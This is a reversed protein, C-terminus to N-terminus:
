FYGFRTRKSHHKGLCLRAAPSKWAGAARACPLAPAPDTNVSGCTRVESKCLCKYVRLPFCEVAVGSKQWFLHFCCRATLSPALCPPAGPIFISYSRNKKKKLCCIARFSGPSLLALCPSHFDVALFGWQAARPPTTGRQIHCLRM